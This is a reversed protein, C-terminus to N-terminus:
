CLALRTVPSATGVPIERRPLIPQHSREDEDRRQVLLARDRGDDGPDVAAEGVGVDEHDVVAGLVGGGLEGALGPRDDCRQGEVLSEPRRKLGAVQVGQAVAIVEAGVEVGVALVRRDLHHPQELLDGFVPGVQHDAGAVAIGRRRAALVVTRRDGPPDARVDEAEEEAGRGSLSEGVRGAAHSGGVPPHHRQEPLAVRRVERLDLRQLERDALPQPDLLERHPHQGPRPTAGEERRQAGGEEDELAQDDEGDTLEPGFLGPYPSRHSGPGDAAFGTWRVGCDRIMAAPIAITKM